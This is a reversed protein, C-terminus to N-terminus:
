PNPTYSYLQRGFAPDSCSVSARTQLQVMVTSNIGIKYREFLKAYTNAYCTCYDQPKSKIPILPLSSMCNEYENGAAGTADICRTTVNELLYDGPAGPAKIREELYRRSLCECNYYQNTASNSECSSRVEDAEEFYWDPLKAFPRETKPASTQAFAPLAVILALFVAVCLVSTKMM